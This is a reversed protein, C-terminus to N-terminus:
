KGHYDELDVDFVDVNEFRFTIRWNGTVRLGSVKEAKSDRRVFGSIGRIGFFDPGSLRWTSRFFNAGPSSSDKRQPDNKEM